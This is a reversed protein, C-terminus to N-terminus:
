GADTEGHELPEGAPEGAQLEKVGVDQFYVKNICRGTSPSVVGLFPVGQPEGLDFQALGEGIDMVEVEGAGIYERMAEKAEDCPPCEPDIFLITRMPM